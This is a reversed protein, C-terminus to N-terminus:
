QIEFYIDAENNRLEIRTGISYDLILSIIKPIDINLGTNRSLEKIIFRPLLKLINLFSLPFLFVIYFKFKKSRIKGRVLPYNKGNVKGHLRSVLHHMRIMYLIALTIFVWATTSVDQFVVSWLISYIFAVAAVILLYIWHILYINFLILILASLFILLIGAIIQFLIM